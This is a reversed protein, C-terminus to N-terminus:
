EVSFFFEKNLLRGLLYELYKDKLLLVFILIPKSKMSIAIFYNRGKLKIDTKWKVWSSHIKNSYKFFKNVYKFNIIYILLSYMEYFYKSFNIYVASIIHPVYFLRM